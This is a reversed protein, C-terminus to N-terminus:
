AKKKQTPKTPHHPFGLSVAHNINVVRAWNEAIHLTSMSAPAVVLRQFLDLPLGLYYAVALKIIDSHSVCVILDQPKHKSSLAEICEVIRQQAHAFTEGGPFRMRTPANQVTKWLKRRRLQKITKDQWDGFDVELLGPEPTVKMGLAQAIPEATEITRDLPSAYVTKIPAQGLAEALAQAQKKGNENLHVGPLRGALRGKAVYENEGHRTLLITPM